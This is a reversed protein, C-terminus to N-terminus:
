DTTQVPLIMYRNALGSNFCDHYAAHLDKNVNNWDVQVFASPLLIQRQSFIETALKHHGHFRIREGTDSTM